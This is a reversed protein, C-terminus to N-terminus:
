GHKKGLKQDKHKDHMHSELAAVKKHCFPCKGTTTPKIQKPTKGVTTKTTKKAM